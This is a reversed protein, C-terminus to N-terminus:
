YLASRRLIIINAPVSTSVRTLDEEKDLSSKSALAKNHTFM